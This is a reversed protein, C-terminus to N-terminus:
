QTGRDTKSLLLRLAAACTTFSAAPEDVTDVKYSSCENDWWMTSGDVMLMAMPMKLVDILTLMPPMDSVSDLLPTLERVNGAKIGPAIESFFDGTELDVFHGTSELSLVTFPDTPLNEFELLEALRRLEDSTLGPSYYGKYCNHQLM